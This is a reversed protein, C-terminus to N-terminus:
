PSLGLMCLRPVSRYVPSALLAHCRMAASLLPSLTAPNLCRLCEGDVRRKIDTPLRYAGDPRAGPRTPDSLILSLSSKTDAFMGEGTWTGNIKALQMLQQRKHINMDEPVPTLLPEVIMKARDIQDWTEGVLHVHLEEHWGDPLRGDPRRPPLTQGDKQSGKGRITVKAGTELELRKQTNGRPGLIMGIFNYGPHEKAPIYLILDKQPPRMGNPLNHRGPDYYWSEFLSQKKEYEIQSRSGWLLIMMLAKSRHLIARAIIYAGLVM